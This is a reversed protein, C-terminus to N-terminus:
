RPAAAGVMHPLPGSALEPVRALLTRNLEDRREWLSRYWAARQAVQYALMRHRSVYARAAEALSQGFEPVAILRALRQQLESPDRFLLGTQLDAITKSYVVPSALSVVRLASAELFKLDSKCRNFPTDQLPMFSVEREALLDMYVDYDCLPTFNKHPTRL